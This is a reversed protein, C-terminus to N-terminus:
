KSLFQTVQEEFYAGNFTKHDNDFKIIGNEILFVRPWGSHFQKIFDQSQMLVYPANSNTLDYFEKIETSDGLLVFYTPPLKIRSRAANIKLAVEVCHSCAMNFVAVLKKGEQLNAKPDGKFGKIVAIDAMESGIPKTEYSYDYIPFLLVITTSAVIFVSPLLWKLNWSKKETKIFIFATLLMLAINKIISELPTMPLLTGFCGCNGSNGDKAISYFLYVTFILLLLFTAPLIFQKLLSNFLLALGLFLELIILGRSLYPALEWGSIGQYVFNLEFVEIPFLKSIASFIFVAGLLIRLILILIKM